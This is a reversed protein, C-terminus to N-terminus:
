EDRVGLNENQLFHVIPAVVFPSKAILGHIDQLIMFHNAQDLKTEAVMVTGDDDGALFPNYGENDGKGGAIIALPLDPIPMQKVHDPVLHQGAEGYLLRYLLNDALFQAVQSGQNPPAIMVIRKTLARARVAQPRALMERVVLGGMCHTVISLQDVGELTKIVRELPAAHQEISGRTSPYSIAWAEFGQARLKEPLDGFTGPGRAIGHVLLVVHRKHMSAVGVPRKKDLEIRCAAFDGWCHRLNNPDLLRSHGTWVHRQLRWGGRLYEDGWFQVGGLTRMELNPMSTKANASLCAMLFLSAVITLAFVLGTILKSIPKIERMQHPRRTTM